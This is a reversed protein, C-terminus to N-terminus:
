RGQGSWFAVSADGLRLSLEVRADGFRAPALVLDALDPAIVDRERSRNASGHGSKSSLPQEFAIVVAAADGLTDFADALRRDVLRDLEVVARQVGVSGFLLSLCSFLRFM